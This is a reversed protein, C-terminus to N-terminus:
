VEAGSERNQATRDVVHEADERLDQLFYRPIAGLAKTPCRRPLAASQSPVSSGSASPPGSARLDRRTAMLNRLLKVEHLSQNENQDQNRWRSTEVLSPSPTDEPLIWWTHGVQVAEHFSSGLPALDRIERLCYSAHRRAPAAGKPQQDRM